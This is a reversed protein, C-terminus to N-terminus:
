HNLVFSRKMSTGNNLVVKVIYIGKTRNGTEWEINRAPNSTHFILKGAPNFVSCNKILNEEHARITVRDSHIRTIITNQSVQSRAHRIPTDNLNKNVYIISTDAPDLKSVIYGLAGVLGANYDIGGETMAYDTVSEKFGSSNWTGGVLYGFQKNRVPILMKAKEEDKPNDDRLYVNRHHPLQPSKNCGSCFGVIFSQKANNAGMIYDIQNYIFQDFENTNKSQSYLAAIYAHNAPYRLAGWGSNGKTCVKENNVSNVYNNVFLTKLKALMSDQQPKICTAIAYPALDHFNSYDFAYNHYEIKNANSTAENKYRDEGTTKFMESAAVIFAQIPSKPAGYFGGSSAGVASNKRPEAYGYANRAHQLCLVSYSSDYKEYIRAMLALTAAAFSAMHGDNPNKWMKRPEGGEEYKQTSMKGATVWTSHDLNGEGKEYYFTNSNPTAKIMWDTAYKLEELLDPIGNPKGGTIDWDGSKAYDSYDKGNYLDHFGTPFSEYAKALVYASYFFTQGFTVHDGCDFWGGELDLAPTVSKDADQTFSTRYLPNEHEMILWNPGVGSRQAGYFRTTMWLAKKYDQTDFVEASLNSSNIAASFLLVCLVNIRIM